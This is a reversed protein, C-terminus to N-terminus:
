GVVHRRPIDGHDFHVAASPLKGPGKRLVWTTPEEDPRLSALCVGDHRAGRQRRRASRLRGALGRAQASSRVSVAPSALGNTCQRLESHRIMQCDSTRHRFRLRCTNPLASGKHNGRRKTASEVQVLAGEDDRLFARAATPRPEPCRAESSETRSRPPSDSDPLVPHACADRIEPPADRADQNPTRTVVERGPLLLAVSAPDSM